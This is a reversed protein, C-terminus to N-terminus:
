GSLPACKIYPNTPSPPAFRFLANGSPVLEAEPETTYLDMVGRRDPVVVDNTEM